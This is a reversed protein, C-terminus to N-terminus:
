KTEELAPLKVLGDELAFVAGAFADKAYYVYGPLIWVSNDSAWITISAREASDLTLDVIKPEPTSESELERTDIGDAIPLAFGSEYFKYAVGGSYRYDSLRSVASHESVTNFTGMQEFEAAFGSVSALTGSDSWSMWWKEATPGGDLFVSAEVSAGWTDRSVRIQDRPFNVGANAFIQNAQEVLESESPIQGSEIPTDVTSPWAAPDNFWWSGNGSWNLYLNPGSGDESGLVWTPWEASSYQSEKPTGEISFVRGLMLLYDTPTGNLKAKYVAGKGAERGLSDGAVYNYQTWMIMDRLGQDAETGPSGKAGLMSSSQSDGVSLLYQPEGPSLTLPIAIALAGAAALATLLFRPKIASNMRHRRWSNQAQKTAANHLLENGLEVEVVPDAAKLRADLNNEKM